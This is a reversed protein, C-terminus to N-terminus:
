VPGGALEGSALAREFHEERRKNTVRAYIMTSSIRRHGLWDQVDAVDSGANMLHVAISHRLIHVRWRDRPLDAQEAYRRFLLRITSTSLPAGRRQPSPFLYADADTALRLLYTELLRRTSEHLPYAGSVGGKLRVVWLRSRDALQSMRIMAAERRRLGYRYILDFLLRDRLSASPIATLFRDVEGKTLYSIGRDSVTLLRRSPKGYRNRRLKVSKLM